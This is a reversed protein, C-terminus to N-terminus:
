LAKLKERDITGQILTCNAPAGWYEISDVETFGLRKFMGTLKKTIVAGQVVTEEPFKGLFDKLMEKFKGKGRYERYIISGNLVLVGQPFKETKGYFYDLNGYQTELMHRSLGNVDENISERVIKTAM